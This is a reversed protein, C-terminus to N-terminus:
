QGPSGHLVPTFGILVHREVALGSHEFSVASTLAWLTLAQAGRFHTKVEEGVARCEWFAGALQQFPVLGAVAQNLYLNM